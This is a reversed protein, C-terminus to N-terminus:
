YDLDMFSLSWNKPKDFTSNVSEKRSISKVIFPNDHKKKLFGLCRYLRYDTSGRVAWARLFSAEPYMSMLKRICTAAVSMKVKGSDYNAIQYLRIYHDKGLTAVVYACFAIKKGSCSVDLFELHKYLKQWALVASTLELRYGEGVKSNESEDLEIKDVKNIQYKKPRSYFYVSSKVTSALPAFARVFSSTTLSRVLNGANNVMILNQMKLLDVWGLKLLAPYSNRVTPFCILLDIDTEKALQNTAYRIVQSFIGQRRYKERVGLQCCQAIHIQIEGESSLNDVTMRYYTQMFVAVGILKDDDLAGYVYSKGAPNEVNKKFWWDRMDAVSSILGFSERIVDLIDNAEKTEDIRRITINGNMDPKSKRSIFIGSTKIQIFTM